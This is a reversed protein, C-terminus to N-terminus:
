RRYLLDEDILPSPAHRRFSVRDLADTGAPAIFLAMPEYPAGVVVLRGDASWAPIGFGEFTGRYTRVTRTALDAIVLIGPDLNPKKGKALHAMSVPRSGPGTFGVVALKHRDPSLTGSLSWRVIDPHTVDWQEGGQMPVVVRAHMPAVDKGWVSNVEWSRREAEIRHAPPLEFGDGTLSPPLGFWSPGCRVALADDLPVVESIGEPIWSLEAAPEIIRTELDVWWLYPQRNLWGLFRAM